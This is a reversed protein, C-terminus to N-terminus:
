KFHEDKPYRLGFWNNKNPYFMDRDYDYKFWRYDSDRIWINRINCIEKNRFLQYIMYLVFILNLIAMIKIFVKM